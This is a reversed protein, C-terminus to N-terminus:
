VQKPGADLALDFSWLESAMAVPPRGGGGHAGEPGGAAAEGGPHAHATQFSPANRWADFAAEDRWRTVVLWTTRDDTPRLLQFGEFGDANDVTGARAAFRRAVEEGTDSPVTLANIKVVSM